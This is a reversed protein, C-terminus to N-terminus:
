PVVPGRLIVEACETAPSIAAEFGHRQAIARILNLGIGTGPADADSAARSFREFARLRIDAPFTSGTNAVSLEFAPTGKARALRVRIESGDPAYKHANTLLNQIMLDLLSRNGHVSIGDAIDLSVHRGNSELLELMDDIAQDTVSRLDVRKMPVDAMAELRFLQTLAMLRANTQDITRDIAAVHRRRAGRDDEDPLRSLDSRIVQLPTKLEHAMNASLYRLGGVLEAIRPLVGNLKRSLDSLEPAPMDEPLRVSTDGDSFQSLLMNIHSIGDAYRRKHSILLVTGILAAVALSGWVVYIVLRAGVIAPGPREFALSLAIDAMPLLWDSSLTAIDPSEIRYTLGDIEREISREGPPAGLIEAIRPSTTRHLRWDNGRWQWLVIKVAEWGPLIDQGRRDIRLTLDSLGNELLLTVIRDEIQARGRADTDAAVNLLVASLVFAAVGAVSLLGFLLLGGPIHGFFQSIRRM